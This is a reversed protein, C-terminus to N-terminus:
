GGEIKVELGQEKGGESREKGGESGGGITGEM